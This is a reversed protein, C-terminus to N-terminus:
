DRVYGRDPDELLMNAVDRTVRVPVDKTFSYENQNVRGLFDKKPVFIVETPEVQKPREVESPEFLDVNAYEVQVSQAGKSQDESSADGTSVPANMVDGETGPAQAGGTAADQVKDLHNESERQRATEALEEQEVKRFGM